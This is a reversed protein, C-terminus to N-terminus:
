RPVGAPEAEGKLILLCRRVVDAKRECRDAEAHRGMNRHAGASTALSRLEQELRSLDPAPDDFLEELAALKELADATREAAGAESRVCFVPLRGPGEFGRCSALKELADAIRATNMAGVEAAWTQRCQMNHEFDDCSNDPRLRTCGVCKAGNYTETKTDSM